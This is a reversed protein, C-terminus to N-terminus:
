NFYYYSKGRTLKMLKKFGERYDKRLIGYIFPNTASSIFILITTSYNFWSPANDDIIVKVEKTLAYPSVCIFYVSIIAMMSYISKRMDSERRKKVRLDELKNGIHSIQIIRVTKSCKRIQLLIMINCIAMILAPIFYCITCGCHVFVKGLYEDYPVACVAEFYDYSVSPTSGCIIGVTGTNGIIWLCITVIVRKTMRSKYKLPYLVAVARDFSIMAAIYSSTCACMYNFVANIRCSIDGFPWGGVAVAVASPTMVFVSTWVDICALFVILINGSQSRLNEVWLSVIIVALNGTFATFAIISTILSALINLFTIQQHEQFDTSKTTNTFNSICDDVCDTANSTNM